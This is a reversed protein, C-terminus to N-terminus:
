DLTGWSSHMCKHVYTPSHLYTHMNTRIDAHMYADQKCTVDNLITGKMQRYRAVVSCLTRLQRLLPACRVSSACCRLVVYPAPAVVSCLTRLQRLLPACRASSACCRLVVYPAPAVVSCLTRLQRVQWRALECELADGFMVAAFGSGITRIMKVRRDVFLALMKSVTCNAPTHFYVLVSDDLAKGQAPPLAQWRTHIYQHIYTHIYTYIYTHTHTYVHAIM